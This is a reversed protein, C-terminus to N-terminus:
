WFQKASPPATAMSKASGACRSAERMAKNNPPKASSAFPVCSTAVFSAGGFFAARRRRRAGGGTARADVAVVVVQHVLVREQGRVPELRRGDVLRRRLAGRPLGALVARAAALLLELGFAVADPRRRRRVRRAAAVAALAVGEAARGARVEALRGELLIGFTGLEHEVQRVVEAVESDAKGAM